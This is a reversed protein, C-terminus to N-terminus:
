SWRKVPRSALLLQAIKATIVYLIILLTMRISKHFSSKKISYFLFFHALKHDEKEFTPDHQDFRASYFPFLITNKEKWRIGHGFKPLAARYTRASAPKIMFAALEVPVKIKKQKQKWDLGSKKKSIIDLRNEQTPRTKNEHHISDNIALRSLQSSLTKLISPWWAHAVGDFAAFCILLM